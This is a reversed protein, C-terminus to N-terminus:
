GGTRRAPGTDWSITFPVPHITEAEKLRLFDVDRIHAGDSCQAIRSGYARRIRMRSTAM